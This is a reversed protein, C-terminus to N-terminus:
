RLFDKEDEDEDEYENDSDPITNQPIETASASQKKIINQQNHDSLSQDPGITKELVAIFTYNVLHSNADSQDDHTDEDNDIKRRKKHGGDVQQLQPFDTTSSSQSGIANGRDENEPSVHNNIPLLPKAVPELTNNGWYNM